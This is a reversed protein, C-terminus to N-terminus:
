LWLRVGIEIPVGWGFGVDGDRRYTTGLITYEYAGVVRVGFSPAINFFVELLELPQFSLGVPIRVGGGFNTWSYEILSSRYSWFQMNFFGGVGFYWHLPGAINNHIFYYDGQIGIGFFDSGIGMNIGWFVPVGPIKLSLAAGSGLFNESDGFGLGYTGMIGIGWGDPYDAFATGTALVAALVVAVLVKRRM